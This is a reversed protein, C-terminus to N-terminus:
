KTLVQPLFYTFFLLQCRCYIILVSVFLSINKLPSDEIRECTSPLTTYQNKSATMKKKHRETNQCQRWLNSYASTQNYASHSDKNLRLLKEQIWVKSWYVDRVMFELVLNHFVTAINIIEFRIKISISILDYEIGRFVFNTM